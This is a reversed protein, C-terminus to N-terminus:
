GFYGRFRHSETGFELVVFVVSYTIKLWFSQKSNSGSVTVQQVMCAVLGDPLRKQKGVAMALYKYGPRNMRQLSLRRAAPSKNLIQDISAHYQQHGGPRRVTTGQPALMWGDPSDPKSLNICTGMQSHLARDQAEEEPLAPRSWCPIAEQVAEALARHARLPYKGYLCVSVKESAQVNRRGPKCRGGVSCHWSAM